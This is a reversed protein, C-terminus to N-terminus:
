ITLHKLNLLIEVYQNAFVICYLFKYCSNQILHNDTTYTKKKRTQEDYTGSNM